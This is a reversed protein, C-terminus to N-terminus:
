LIITVYETIIDTQDGDGFVAANYAEINSNTAAHTRGIPLRFGIWPQGRDDAIRRDVLDEIDAFRQCGDLAIIAIAGVALVGPEFVGDVVATEVPDIILDGFSQAPRQLWRAIIMKIVIA